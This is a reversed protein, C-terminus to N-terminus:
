YEEKGFCAEGGSYHVCNPKQNRRAENYGDMCYSKLEANELNNCVSTDNHLAAFWWYCNNFKLKGGVEYIGFYEYKLMDRYKDCEGVNKFQSILKVYCRVASDYTEGECHTIDSDIFRTAKDYYQKCNNYEISYEEFAKSYEKFLENEDKGQNEKIYEKFLDDDKSPKYAQYCIGNDRKIVALDEYCLKKYTFNSCFKLDIYQSVEDVGEKRSEYYCFDFPYELVLDSGIKLECKEEYCQKLKNKAEETNSNSCGILFIIFIVVFIFINKM